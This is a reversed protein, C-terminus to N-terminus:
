DQARQNTPQNTQKRAIAIKKAARKKQDQLPKKKPSSDQQRQNTRKNGATRSEIKRENASLNQGKGMKGPIGPLRQGIAFISFKVKSAQAFIQGKHKGAFIV